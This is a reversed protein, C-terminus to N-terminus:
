YYVVSTDIGLCSASLLYIDKDSQASPISTLADGAQFRLREIGSVLRAAWCKKAEEIVQPRGVVLATLRPHRKLIALLKAGRGGWTLSGSM